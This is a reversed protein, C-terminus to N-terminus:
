GHGAAACTVRLGILERPNESWVDLWDAAQAPGGSDPRALSFV